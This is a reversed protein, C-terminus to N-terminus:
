DEADPEEPGYRHPVSSSRRGQHSSSQKKWHLHCWGDTPDYLLTCWKCKDLGGNLLARKYSKTLLYPTDDGISIEDFWGEGNAKRQNDYAIPRYM